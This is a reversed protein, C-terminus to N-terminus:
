KMLIMKKTIHKGEASLRYFYVGSSVNNSHEDVGNWIVEHTGATKVEDVLTAVKQGKINYISLETVGANKLTYCIKTSPNFPNPYCSLSTQLPKIQINESSLLDSTKIKQAFLDYRINWDYGIEDFFSCWTLIAFEDNLKTLLPLKQYNNNEHVALLSNAPSINPWHDFSICSIDQTNAYSYRSAILLGNDINLISMDAPYETNTSTFLSYSTNNWLPTFSGPQFSFSKIKPSLNYESSIDIIYLKNEDVAITFYLYTNPYNIIIGDEGYFTNLDSDYLNAKLVWNGAIREQWVVLPGYITEAFSCHEIEPNLVVTVSNSQIADSNEIKMLKLEDYDNFYLLYNNQYQFLSKTSATSNELIFPGNQSLDNNVIKQAMIVENQETIKKTWVISSEENDHKIFFKLNKHHDNAYNSILTNNLSAIPQFNQDFAFLYLNKNNNVLFLMSGDDRIQVDALANSTNGIVAQYVKALSLGKNPYVLSGDSNLIQIKLYGFGNMWAILLQNGIAKCIPQNVPFSSDYDILCNQNDPNLFSFDQNLNYQYLAGEYDMQLLQYLGNDAGLICRLHFYRNPVSMESLVIGLSDIQAISTKTTLSDVLVNYIVYQHSNSDEFFLIGNINLYNIHNPVNNSITHVIYGENPYSTYSNKSVIQRYIVMEHASNYHNYTITYVTDTPTAVDVHFFSELPYAPHDNQTVFYYSVPQLNENVQRITKGQSYDTVLLYNNNFTMADILREENEAYPSVVNGDTSILVLQNFAQAIFRDDSIKKVYFYEYFSVTLPINVEPWINLGNSNIHVGTIANSSESIWFSYLGGNEDPIMAGNYILNQFCENNNAALPSIGWLPQLNQDLKMLKVFQNEAFQILIANDSSKEIKVNALYSTSSYLVIPEGVPIANQIDSKHVSLQYYAGEKIIEFFYFQNDIRIPKEFIQYYNTKKLVKSSVDWEFEASLSVIVCLFVM